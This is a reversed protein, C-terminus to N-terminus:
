NERGWAVIEQVDWSAPEGEGTTAMKYLAKEQPNLATKAELRGAIEKVKLKMILRLPLPLKNMAFGGQLCFLEVGDPINNKARSFGVSQENVAGMGVSVVAAVNLKKEARTYGAVKGAFVWGVYIVKGDARVHCKSLPMCPVHLAASLAQAYKECSGTLSNYIIASIM